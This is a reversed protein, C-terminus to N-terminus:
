FAGFGLSLAFRRGTVGGSAVLLAEASGTTKLFDLVVREQAAAGQM